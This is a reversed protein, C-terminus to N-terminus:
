GGEPRSRVLGGREMMRIQSLPPSGALVKPGMGAAMAPPVLRRAATFPISRASAEVPEGFIGSTDSIRDIILLSPSRTPYRSRSFRNDAPSWRADATPRKGLKGTLPTLDGPVDRDASGIALRGRRIGGQPGPANLVPSGARPKRVDGRGDRAPSAARRRSMSTTSRAERRGLAPRAVGM